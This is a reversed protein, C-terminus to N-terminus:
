SSQSHMLGGCLTAEPISLATPGQPQIGSRQLLFCLPFASAMNWYLRFLLFYILLFYFFFSMRHLHQSVDKLESLSRERDSKRTVGENRQEKGALVTHSVNEMCCGGCPKSIYEAEWGGGQRGARGPPGLGTGQQAARHEPPSLCPGTGTHSAALCASVNTSVKLLLRSLLLM